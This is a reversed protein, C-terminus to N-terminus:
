QWESQPINSDPESEAAIINDPTMIEESAIMFPVKSGNWIRQHEAVFKHNM